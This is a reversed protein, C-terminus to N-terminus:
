VTAGIRSSVVLWLRGGQASLRRMAALMGPADGHEIVHAALVVDFKDEPAFAELPEPALTAAVGRRDMQAAGREAMRASPELLTVAHEPGQIATWAEAFAATGAGVDIVRQGPPARYAGASLFGLYGDYYGLARMKDAWAPAASDYRATLAEQM